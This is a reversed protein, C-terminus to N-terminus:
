NGSSRGSHVVYDKAPGLAFQTKPQVSFSLHLKDPNTTGEQSWASILFEEGKVNVLGEFDPHSDDAKHENSWIRGRNTNSNRM